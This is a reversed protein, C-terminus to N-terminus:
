NIRPPRSNYCCNAVAMSTVSVYSPVYAESRGRSAQYLARMCVSSWRTRRAASVRALGQDRAPAVSSELQLLYSYGSSSLVSRRPPGSESALGRMTTASTVRDALFPAVFTTLPCTESPPNSRAVHQHTISPRTRACRTAPSRM